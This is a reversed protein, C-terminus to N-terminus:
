CYDLETFYEAAPYCYGSKRYNGAKPSVIHRLCYLVFEHLHCLTAKSSLSFEMVNRIELNLVEQESPM